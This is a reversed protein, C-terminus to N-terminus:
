VSEKLKILWTSLVESELAKQAAVQEAQKKTKGEGQSLVYDDVRIEVFFTKAHDPGDDRILHYTPSRRNHKQIEEQLRSKYDSRFPTEHDLSELENKFINLVWDRAREYNSDLYIAGILAEFCSALLRPKTAGGSQTEGKGLRLDESLKLSISLRNLSEENVLSARIKSLQGETFKPFDNYLKESLVLDLVADGLFELRENDGPSAASNENFFSTHTLALELLKPDNFVYGIRNTLTMRAGYFPLDWKLLALKTVLTAGQTLM